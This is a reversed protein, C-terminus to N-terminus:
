CASPENLGHQQDYRHMLTFFWEDRDSVYFDEVMGRSDLPVCFDEGFVERGTLYALQYSYDDSMDRHTSVYDTGGRVMVWGPRPDEGIEEPHCGKNGETGRDYALCIEGEPTLWNTKSHQMDIMGDFRSFSYCGIVADVESQTPGDTWFVNVSSGGSYTSTRVMFKVSPFERKLRDRVLTAVDKPLLYAVGDNERAENRAKEYIRQVTKNTKM